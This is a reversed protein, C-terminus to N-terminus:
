HVTYAMILIELEIYLSTSVPYNVVITAMPKVTEVDEGRELVRKVAGYGDEDYLSCSLMEFYNPYNIESLGNYCRRGQNNNRDKAYRIKYDGTKAHKM